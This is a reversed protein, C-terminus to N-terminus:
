FFFFKISVLSVILIFLIGSNIFVLTTRSKPLYNALIGLILVIGAYIFGPFLESPTLYWHSISEKETVQNLYDEHMYDFVQRSVESLKDPTIVIYHWSYIPKTNSVAEDILSDDFVYNDEFPHYSIILKTFDKNPMAYVTEGAKINRVSDLVPNSLMVDEKLTAEFCAPKPDAINKTFPMSIALFVCISIMLTLLINIWQATESKIHINISRMRNIIKGM